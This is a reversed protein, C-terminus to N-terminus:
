SLALSMTDEENKTVNMLRGEGWSSHGQQKQLSKRAHTTQYISKLSPTNLEIFYLAEKTEMLM